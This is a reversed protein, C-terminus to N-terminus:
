SDAVEQRALWQGWTLSGRTAAPGPLAAGARFAAALKGPVPLPLTARGAARRFMRVADLDEPGGFETVAGSPAGLLRRVVAAACESVDTPALRFGLPAWQVPGTLLRRRVADVFSFWQTSRLISFPVDGAGVLQEAALKSRYYGYPIRDIGVISVYVLHGIGAQAAAALLRRTGAVDVARSHRPDSAAHVVLDVGRVAEAVGSGTSLDFGHRRSAQVPELGQARLQPVLATGLAGSSGTVLVRAM